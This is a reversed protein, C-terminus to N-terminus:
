RAPQMGLRAVQADAGPALSENYFGAVWGHKGEGGLAAKLRVRPDDAYKGAHWESVVEDASPDPLGAFSDLGWIVPVPALADQLLLMSNGTYVGVEYVHGLRQLDVADGDKTQVAAHAAAAQDVAAAVGLRWLEPQHAVGCFSRDEPSLAGSLGFKASILIAIAGARQTIATIRLGM